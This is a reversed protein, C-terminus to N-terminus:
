GPLLACQRETPEVGLAAKLRGRYHEFERVAESQNGESMHVAILAGHPSERLPDAAVAAQAAVVAEGFRAAGALVGAAAELAHLRSQRWNEAEGVIRAVRHEDEPTWRCVSSSDLVQNCVEVRVPARDDAGDETEASVRATARDAPDIIRYRGLEANDARRYQHHAGVSVDAQAIVSPM